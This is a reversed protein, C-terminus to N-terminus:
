GGGVRGRRRGRLGDLLFRFVGRGMVGHADWFAGDPCSCTWERHIYALHLQAAIADLKNMAPGLLLDVTENAWKRLLRYPTAVAYKFPTWLRGCLERVLDV